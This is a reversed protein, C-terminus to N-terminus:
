DGINLHFCYDLFMEKVKKREQNYLIDCHLRENGCALKYIDLKDPVIADVEDILIKKDAEHVAEVLCVGYKALIMAQVDRELMKYDPLGPKLGSVVDGLFAESADHLLAYRKAKYSKMHVALNLSHEAVSYFTDLPLSGGFRPINSLHHAIRELTIDSYKLRLPDILHGDYLAFKGM